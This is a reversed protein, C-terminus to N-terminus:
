ISVTHTVCNADKSNMQSDYHLLIFKIENFNPSMSSFPKEGYWHTTASQDLAVTHKRM